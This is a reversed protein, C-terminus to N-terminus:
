LTGCSVCLLFRRTARTSLDRYSGKMHIMTVQVLNKRMTGQALGRIWNRVDSKEAFFPGHPKEMTRAAGAAVRHEGHNKLRGAGHTRHTEHGIKLGRIRKMKLIRGRDCGVFADCKMLHEFGIADSKAMAEKVRPDSEDIM